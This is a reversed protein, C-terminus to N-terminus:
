WISWASSSSKPKEHTVEIQGTEKPNPDVDEPMIGRDKLEGFLNDFYNPDPYGHVGGKESTKHHIGAWVIVNEEGTTLSKGVQFTLKREFALILMSLALKGKQNNPLYATRADARYGIKTGPITGYPFRYDIVIVGDPSKLVEKLHHWKEVKWKMTGPPM